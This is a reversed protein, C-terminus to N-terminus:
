SRQDEDPELVQRGERANDALPPRGDETSSRGSEVGTNNLPPPDSESRHFLGAPKKSSTMSHTRSIVANDVAEAESEQVKGGSMGVDGRGEDVERGEWLRLDGVATAQWAAKTTSSHRRVKEGRKELEAGDESTDGESLSIDVGEENDEERRVDTHDKEGEKNEERQGIGRELPHKMIENALGSAGLGGAGGGMPPFYGSDFYGAPERMGGGGGVAPYFLGEHGPSGAHPHVPAGVAPNIMPNTGGAGPRGWFAGPSM